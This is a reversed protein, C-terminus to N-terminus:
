HVRYEISDTDDVDLDYAFLASVVDCLEFLTNRQQEGLLGRICYKLIGSSLVLRWEVTKVYGILFSEEDGIM